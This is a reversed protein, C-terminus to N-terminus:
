FAVNENDGNILIKELGQNKRFRDPKFAKERYLEPMTKYYILELIYGLQEIIRQEVFM